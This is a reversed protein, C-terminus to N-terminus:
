IFRRAASVQLDKTCDRGVVPVILILRLQTLEFASQDKAREKYSWLVTYICLM